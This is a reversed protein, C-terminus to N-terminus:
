RKDGNIEVVLSDVLWALRKLISATAGWVYHEGYQFGWFGRYSKLQSEQIDSSHVENWQYIGDDLVYDIPIRIVEEVEYKNVVFTLNPRDVTAVFPYIRYGTRTDFHPLAVILDFLNVAIGLEESCERAATNWLSLDENDYRGGPFCIQSPHSTLYESRKTLVIDNEHILIMVASLKPSTLCAYSPICDVLQMLLKTDTYNSIQYLLPLFKSSSGEINM